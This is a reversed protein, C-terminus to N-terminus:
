YGTVKASFAEGRDLRAAIDSRVRHRFGVARYKKDDVPLLGCDEAYLIFLLRTSCSWRRTGCRASRPLAERSRRASGGALM